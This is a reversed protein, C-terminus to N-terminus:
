PVKRRREGRLTLEAELTVSLPRGAAASSSFVLQYSWSPPVLASPAIVRPDLAANKDRWGLRMLADRLRRERSGEPAELQLLHGLMSELATVRAELVADHPTIAALHTRWPQGRRQVGWLMLEIGELLSLRDSPPVDEPWRVHASISQLRIEEQLGSAFHAVFQGGAQKDLIVHAVESWPQWADEAATDAARQKESWHWNM